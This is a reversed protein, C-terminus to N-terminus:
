RLISCLFGGAVTLFSSFGHTSLLTGNCYAPRVENHFTEVILPFAVRVTVWLRSVAPKRLPFFLFFFDERMQLSDAPDHQKDTAQPEANVVLLQFLSSLSLFIHNLSSISCTYNRRGDVSPLIAANFLFARMLATM